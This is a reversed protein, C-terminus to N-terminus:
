SAAIERLVALDKEIATAEASLSGGKLGAQVIHEAHNHHREEVFEAVDQLWQNTKSPGLASRAVLAMSQQSAKMPQYRRLRKDVPKRLREVERLLGEGRSILAVAQQKSEAKNAAEESAYLHAIEAKVQGVAETLAGTAAYPPGSRSRNRRAHLGTVILGVGLALVAWWQWSVGEFIRHLVFVAVALVGYAIINAFVNEWLRRM